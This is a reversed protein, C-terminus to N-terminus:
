LSDATKGRRGRGKTSSSLKACRGIPAQLCFDRSFIARLSASESVRNQAKGLWKYLEGDSAGAGYM